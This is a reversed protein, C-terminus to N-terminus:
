LLESLMVAMAHDDPYDAIKRRIEWKELGTAELIEDEMIVEERNILVYDYQSVLCLDPGTRATGV